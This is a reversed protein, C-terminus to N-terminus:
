YLVSFFHDRYPFDAISLSFGTVTGSHGDCLGRPIAQSLIQPRLLSLGAEVRRRPPMPEVYLIRIDQCGPNRVSCVATTLVTRGIPRRRALSVKAM